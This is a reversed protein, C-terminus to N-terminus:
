PAERMALGDLALELPAGAREVTVQLAEGATLRRLTAIGTAADTPVQGDIAIIRDGPKLGMTAFARSGPGPFVEIAELQDSSYVPSVRIHRTLDDDNTARAPTHMGKGGVTLLPSAPALSNPPQHGESYLRAQEGDRELVIYDRNIEVIRAGNALVSGIAYVQPSRANVGLEVTGEM